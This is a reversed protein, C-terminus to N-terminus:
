PLLGTACSDLQALAALLKEKPTRCDNPKPHSQPFLGHMVIKSFSKCHDAEANCYADCATDFRRRYWYVIDPRAKACIRLAELRTSQYFEGIADDGTQELRAILVLIEARFERRRVLWEHFLTSGFGIATGFVIFIVKKM